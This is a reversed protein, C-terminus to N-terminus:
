SVASRDVKCPIVQAVQESGLNMVAYRHFEDLRKGVPFWTVGAAKIVVNEYSDPVVSLDIRRSLYFLCDGVELIAWRLFEVNRPSIIKQIARPQPEIFKNTWSAADYIDYAANYVPTVPTKYSILLDLALKSRLAQEFDRRIIALEASNLFGM